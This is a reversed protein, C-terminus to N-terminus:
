LCERTCPLSRWLRSRTFSPDVIFRRWSWVCATHCTQEAAPPKNDDVRSPRSRWRLSSGDGGPVIAWRDADVVKGPRNLDGGAHRDHNGFSLSSPKQRPTSRRRLADKGARQGVGESAGDGSLLSLLKEACHGSLPQADGAALRGSLDDRTCGYLDGWQVGRPLGNGAFGSESEACESVERPCPPASTSAAHLTGHHSRRSVHEVQDDDTTADGAVGARLGRDGCSSFPQLQNVHPSSTSSGPSRAPSM